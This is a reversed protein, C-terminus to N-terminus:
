AMVKRWWWTRVRISISTMLSTMDTFKIQRDVGLRVSARTSMLTMAMTSSSSVSPKRGPCAISLAFPRPCLALVNMVVSVFRFKLLRVQVTTCCLKVNGSTEFQTSLASRASFFLLPMMPMTRILKWLQLAQLLTAISFTLVSVTKVSALASSVM